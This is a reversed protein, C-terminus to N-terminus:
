NLNLLKKLHIEFASVSFVKQLYSCPSELDDSTVRHTQALVDTQYYKKLSRVFSLSFSYIKKKSVKAQFDFGEPDQDLHVYSFLVKRSEVLSYCTIRLIGCSKLDIEGNFSKLYDWNYSRYIMKHQAAIGLPIKHDVRLQITDLLLNTLKNTNM